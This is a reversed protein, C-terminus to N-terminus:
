YYRGTQTSLEHLYEKNTSDSLDKQNRFRYDWISELFLQGGTKYWMITATARTAAAVMEHYLVAPCCVIGASRHLSGLLAACQSCLVDGRKKKKPDSRNEVV